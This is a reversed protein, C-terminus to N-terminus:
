CSSDAADGGIALSLVRVTGDFVSGSGYDTQKLSYSTATALEADGWDPNVALISQDLAPSRFVHSVCSGDRAAWGPNRLEFREVFTADKPLLKLAARGAEEETVSPEFVVDLNILTDGWVGGAVYDACVLVGPRVAYARAEGFPAGTAAVCSDPDGSRWTADLSTVTSGLGRTGDPDATDDTSASEEAKKPPKVGLCFEERLFLYFTEAKARPAGDAVDQAVLESWASHGSGVERCTDIMLM